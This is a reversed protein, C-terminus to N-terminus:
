ALKDSLKHWMRKYSDVTTALPYKLLPTIQQTKSSVAWKLRDMLEDNTEFFSVGGYGRLIEPLSGVKRAIIRAGMAAAECASLGFGETMSPVIVFDSGAIYRPLESRPVCNGFTISDSFHPHMRISHPPILVLLKLDTRGTAFKKWVNLLEILGKTSGPRGFFLFVKKNVWGHKKKLWSTDTREKSFLDYDIANYIVEIQRSKKPIVERLHAITSESVAIYRSFNQRLGCIEIFRWLQGAPIHRWLANGTEHVTITCSKRSILAVILAPFLAIPTSTHIYDCQRALRIGPLLAAVHFGWRGGRGVRYINVGNKKEFPATDALLSTLVTIQWPKKKDNALGECLTQFLVEAGGVYPYYHDLIFLVKM